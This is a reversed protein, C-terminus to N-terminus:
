IGCTQIRKIIKLGHTVIENQVENNMYCAQYQHTYFIDFGNKLVSLLFYRIRILHINGNFLTMLFKAIWTLNQHNSLGTRPQFNGNIVKIIVGFLLDSPYSVIVSKKKSSNINSALDGLRQKCFTSQIFSINIHRQFSTM